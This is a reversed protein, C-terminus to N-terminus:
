WRLAQSAAEVCAKEIIPLEMQSFATLVHDILQNEEDPRGVGIRVRRLADTRFVELISRVGRHGGDSGRMRVRVAGLPLCAAPVGTM